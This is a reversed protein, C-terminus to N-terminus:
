AVLAGQVCVGLYLAGPYAKWWLYSHVQGNMKDPSSHLAFIAPQVLLEAQAEAAELSFLPLRVKGGLPRVGQGVELCVQHAVWSHSHCGTM